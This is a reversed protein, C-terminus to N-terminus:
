RSVLSSSLLPVNLTRAGHQGLMEVGMETELLSRLRLRSDDLKTLRRAAREHVEQLLVIRTEDSFRSHDISLPSLINTFL